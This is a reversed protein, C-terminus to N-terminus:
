KKFKNYATEYKDMERKSFKYHIPLEEKNIYDIFDFLNEVDEHYICFFLAGIERRNWSHDFADPNINIVQILGKEIINKVAVIEKRNYTHQRKFWLANIYASAFGSDINGNISIIGKLLTVQDLMNITQNGPNMQNFSDSTLKTMKTKQDEQWIFHKAKDENFNVWRIEMNYDFTNDVSYLNSMAVYRHYGDLIDLSELHKFIIKGDEYKFDVDEPINLTITNPIYSKNSFSETIKRLAERNLTISYIEYEGSVIKTLSRQTNENYKILPALEMLQQVSIKGIWQSENIQTAEYILPFKIKKTEYKYKKLEDVENENFWTDVLSSNGKTLQDMAEMISYLIEIPADAPNRKLSLYDNSIGVPIKHKKNLYTNLQDLEKKYKVTSMIQKCRDTVAKGAANKDLM